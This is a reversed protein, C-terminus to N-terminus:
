EPLFIRASVSPSESWRTLIPGPIEAKRVLTVLPLNSSGRGHPCPMRLATHRGNWWKASFHLRLRELVVPPQHDLPLFSLGKRESRGSGTTGFFGLPGMPFRVRIEPKCSRCRGTPGHARTQTGIFSISKEGTEHSTNM